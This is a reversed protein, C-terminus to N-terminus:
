KTGAPLGADKNADTTTEGTVAPTGGTGTSSKEGKKGIDDVIKARKYFDQLLSPRAYRSNNDMHHLKMRDFDYVAADESKGTKVVEFTASILKFNFDEVYKRLIDEGKGFEGNRIYEAVRKEDKYRSRRELRLEGLWREQDATLKTGAADYQKRKDEIEKVYAADYDDFPRNIETVIESDQKKLFRQYFPNGTEREIEIMHAYIYKKTEVDQSEFLALYSYRMARRSLKIGEIYQSIKYSYLRPHSADASKKISAALARDRYGLSLYLRALPNKSKIVFPAMRDLLQKSEELYQVSLTKEYLVVNMKQSDYVKRFARKYESQLFAVEGNFHEQYIKFFDDKEADAGFNSLAVDMFEIFAKNDGIVRETTTQDSFALLNLPLTLLALLPILYRYM